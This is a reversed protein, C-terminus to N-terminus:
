RPISDLRVVAGTRASRRAAEILRMSEVGEGVPVPPPAGRRVADVFDLLVDRVTPNAPVDPLVERARGRFAELTRHVHDGALQGREGVWEIRGSRGGATRDNELVALIGGPELRAWLAVRDETHVTAIRDECASLEVVEAGTLFRMLDLGHVATNIWLGGPGPDDIWGRHFPEFRQHLSLTRWAGLRTALERIRLILADYRLTFAISLFGGTRDVAHSLGIAEDLTAGLPKEVLVPK